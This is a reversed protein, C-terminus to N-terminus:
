RPDVYRPQRPKQLGAPKEVVRSVAGEHTKMSNEVPKVSSLAKPVCYGLPRVDLFPAWTHGAEESALRVPLTIGEVGLDQAVESVPATGPAPISPDTQPGDEGFELTLRGQVVERQDHNAKGHPM